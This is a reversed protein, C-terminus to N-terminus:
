DEIDAPLTAVQVLQTGWRRGALIGRGAPQTAPRVAGILAGEDRSGSMVLGPVSLEKCRQLVTEFQARAAGGARRALILHLGVDKAQPLFEALAAVPNGTPTAMLDYDDIMVFLEPGTWWSRNRLQEPTVDPGPLRGRLLAVVNEVFPALATSSPAYGALFNEPVAGLLTRRYDILLIRGERDTRTTTIGQILTRLLSTKGCEADGFVLFHPDADFDLFVPALEAESLGLVVSRPRNAPPAPLEAYPLTVPLMRVRPARPGTWAHALQEVLDATGAGVSASDSVGDIRPLAALFHLKDTTLGRGPFAVPVGQAVRRDIESDSPDGLRLEIRTGLLDKLAPRFEAWRTTALVVHVGYGLGQQALVTVQGEIDEFEARFAGWGDIVLFVDGYADSGNSGDSGGSGESTPAAARARRFAAVSDYGHERFLVERERIVTAVEALIRRVVDPEGRSAVAGVHPLGSLAALSGGGLDIVYAQVQRPTHTLALSSLLTRLMSSKGSQPGGVLAVHGGSGSLDVWMLDRRQEYPRDVLALPVTLAPRESWGVPELGRSGPELPPLLQDLTPSEQLPPLWVEHAPPGQGRLRDVVVDLVSKEKGLGDGGGSESAPDLEAVPTPEDPGGTLEPMPVEAATFPRPRRDLRLRGAVPAAGRRYPGSVYAAKFRVMSTTDFKLYGSGPISPLEYADAVGLVARSEAPSFTKLGIRYSLHSDLGRLKGEELRQSALLLHMSLSRGLRGIMVFLEAFDPKQTLLETFEDCVILLAPLPDLAAGNERAREYDKVSAFNGASRLLEQRRNMEGALADRMRDVMSLDDSLNTIVAATHPLDELGAFTAGGKFDVLVFNLAASSHTMALGAVLTRLVESKGSGTAGIVLGHPGMGEQAAEKIDLDVPRGDAGLGIPIRLRDHITRPRWVVGVDLDGADGMGLLEPLGTASSLPQEETAPGGVGVRYRAMQRATTEATHTGVGDAVGLWETRVGARAGVRAGRIELRLGRRAPLVGLSGSLDLLCVGALGEQLLVAEQGTVVGDDIIVLVQARDPAGTTARTFRPRTSFEAHLWREVEALSSGVMRVPGVADSLTPHQNHPLWKVWEWRARAPGSAVVAIIMTDPAHLVAAQLLLARALARAAVPPGDISIAPFSRVQLAIPLDAVVAHTRVLRRLAVASVPELEEVPGTQPPLLRTALRQRGRGLRLQGFDEDGTRREWLRPSLAVSVLGGPDPHAWELASRQAAAASRARKRVQALYRLYDKREEDAAAASKGRPGSGFMMGVTSAAMMGGMMLSTANFGSLVVFGVSAAIMVGPLLAVLVNGPLPRTIDPPAELHIEGSPPPPGKVRAVRRFQKTTM